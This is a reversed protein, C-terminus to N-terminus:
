DKKVMDEADPPSKLDDIALDSNENSQGEVASNDGLKIIRIPFALQFHNMDNRPEKEGFKMIM